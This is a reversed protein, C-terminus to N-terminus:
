VKAVQKENTAPGETFGNGTASKGGEAAGGWPPVGEGPASLSGSCNGWGFPGSM